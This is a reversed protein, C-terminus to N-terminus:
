ESYSTVSKRIWGDKWEGDSNRYTLHLGEGSVSDYTVRMGPIIYENTRYRLQFTASKVMPYIYATDNITVNGSEGVQKSPTNTSNYGAGDGENDMLNQNDNSGKALATELSDARMKAAKNAAELSDMRAAVEALKMSDESSSITRLQEDAYRYQKISSFIEYGALSFLIVAAAIKLIKKRRKEKEANSEDDEEVAINEEEFEDGDDENDDEVVVRNVQEIKEGSPMEHFYERIYKGRKISYVLLIVPLGIFVWMLMSLLETM